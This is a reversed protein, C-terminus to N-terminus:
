RPRVGGAAAAAASSSASWIMFQTSLKEMGDVLRPTAHTLLGAPIDDVVWGNRVAALDEWGPRSALSTEPAALSVIIDPNRGLLVSEQVPADARAQDSLINRGGAETVAIHVSSGPGASWPPSSLTEIYVRPHKRLRRAAQRVANIRVRLEGALAAAQEERGSAAGVERIGDELSQLSAHRKIMIVPIHLAKLRGAIRSRGSVRLLVATPQLNRIKEFAPQHPPGVKTKQRAAEPFTCADTVGVVQPGAGIAFLIETVDPDLSVIRGAFTLTPLLCVALMYPGAKLGALRGQTEM